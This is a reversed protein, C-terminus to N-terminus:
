QINKMDMTGANIPMMKRKKKFSFITKFVGFSPLGLGLRSKLFYSLFRRSNKKTCHKKVRPFEEFWNRRKRLMFRPNESEMTMSIYM